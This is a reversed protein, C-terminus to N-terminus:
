PRFRQPTIIEEMWILTHNKEFGLDLFVNEGRNDPYNVSQPRLNIKASRFYPVAARIVQEDYKEETM